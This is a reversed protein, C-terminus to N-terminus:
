IYEDVVFEALVSGIFESKELTWDECSTLEDGHARAKENDICTETAMHRIKAKSFPLDHEYGKVLASLLREDVIKESRGKTGVVSNKTDCRWHKCAAM